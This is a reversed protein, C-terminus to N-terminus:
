PALGIFQGTRVHLPCPKDGTRYVRCSLGVPAGPKAFPDRGSILITLSGSFMLREAQSHSEVKQYSFNADVGVLDIAEQLERETQKWNPCGDFYQLTISVAM